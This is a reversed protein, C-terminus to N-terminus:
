FGGSAGAGGSSGGGGKLGTDAPAPNPSSIVATAGAVLLASAGFDSDREVVVAAATFGNRLGGPGTRLWRELVAAIGMLLLGLIAPDWDQRQIGWYPKNTMIAVLLGIAAAIMLPRHRLRIAAPMLAAPILWVAAYSLWYELGAGRSVVGGVLNELRLNFALPILLALMGQLTEWREREFDPIERRAMAAACLTTWLCALAGRPHSLQFGALGASASAVAALAAALHRRRAYVLTFLVAGVCGGAILEPTLDKRLGSGWALGTGWAMLFPGGLLLAEEIGFRYLHFIVAVIEGIALALAGEFLFFWGADAEHWDRMSPGAVGYFAAMAAVGLGFLLARIALGALGPAASQAAEIAALQSEVILGSRRWDRVKEREYVLREGPEDALIM